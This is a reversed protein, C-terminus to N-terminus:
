GGTLGWFEPITRDTRKRKTAGKRILSERCKEVKRTLQPPIQCHMKQVMPIDTEGKTGYPLNEGLVRLSRRNKKPTRKQEGRRPTDYPQIELGKKGGQHWSVKRKEERQEHDRRRAHNEKRKEKRM